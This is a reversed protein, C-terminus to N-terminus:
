HLNWICGFGLYVRPKHLYHIILNEVGIRM